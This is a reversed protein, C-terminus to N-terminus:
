FWTLHLHKQFRFLPAHLQLHLLCALIHNETSKFLGQMKKFAEFYPSHNGATIRSNRNRRINREVFIEFEFDFPIGRVLWSPRPGIVFEVTHHLFSALQFEMLISTRNWTGNHQSKEDFIFHTTSEYWTEKLKGKSYMKCSQYKMIAQLNKHM